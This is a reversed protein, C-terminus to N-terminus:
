PRNQKQKELYRQLDRIAIQVHYEIYELREADNRFSCSMSALASKDLNAAFVSRNVETQADVLYQQNAIM